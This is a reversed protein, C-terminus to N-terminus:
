RRRSRVRHGAVRPTDPGEPTQLLSVAGAKTHALLRDFDLSLRPFETTAPRTGRSRSRRDGAVSRRRAAGPRPRAHAQARRAAHARHRAASDPLLHEREALWPLWSEMGDFVQGDALREWQERGWRMTRVLERPATACRPRRSCSVPRSSGRRTSTTPPASTPSRSRPSATSRTAGSTSASPTTTPPRTCTSSRAACPSRAARSWRTSAGTAARSWRRWWSTATSGGARACSSPSSRRSTPGSGSCSRGCRRWSWPRLTTPTASDGSCASAVAWRRSRRRCGSSRCRRGHRSCSSRASRGAVRRRPVAGSRPRPARSRGRHAGGRRAAPPDLGGGARVIFLPRAADPVAVASARAIVARM